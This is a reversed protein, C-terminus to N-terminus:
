SCDAQGHGTSLTANGMLTLIVESATRSFLHSPHNNYLRPSYEGPISSVGGILFRCVHIFNRCELWEGVLRAEM